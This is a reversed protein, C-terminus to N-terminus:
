GAAYARQQSRRDQSRLICFGPCARNIGGLGRAGAFEVITGREQFGVALQLQPFAHMARCGPVNWLCPIHDLFEHLMEAPTSKSYV